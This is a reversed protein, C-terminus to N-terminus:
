SKLSVPTNNQALRLKVEHLKLYIDLTLILYPFSDKALSDPDVLSVVNLCFVQFTKEKTGLDNKGSLSM